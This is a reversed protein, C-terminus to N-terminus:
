PGQVSANGLDAICVCRVHNVQELVFRPIFLLAVSFSASVENQWPISISGTAFRKYFDEDRNDISVGRVSSFQEIDLVDKAYVARPDPVFPPDVVVAEMRKWNISRFWTHERVDRADDMSGLRERADKRLLASCLQKASESFKESYVEDDQRVRREIEERKARDKRKRFPGHGELMEYVLCGLGFWDVAMGYYEGAVVEPAVLREILYIM